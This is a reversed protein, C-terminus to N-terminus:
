QPDRHYEKLAFSLFLAMLAGVVTFTVGVGLLKENSLKSQYNQSLELDKFTVKPRSSFHRLEFINYEFVDM